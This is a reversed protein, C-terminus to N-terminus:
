NNKKKGEPSCQKPPDAAERCRNDKERHTSGPNLREGARHKPVLLVGINLTITEKIRICTLESLEQSRKHRSACGLASTDDPLDGGGGGLEPVRRSGVPGLLFQLHTPPPPPWRPAAQSVRSHHCTSRSCAKKWLWGGDSRLVTSNTASLTPDLATFCM